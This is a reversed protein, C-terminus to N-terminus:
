ISVVSASAPALRVPEYQEREQPVPCSVGGQHPELVAEADQIEDSETEEEEEEEEEWEEVEEADEDVEDEEEEEEEEEEQSSSETDSEWAYIGVVPPRDDVEGQHPFFPIGAAAWLASTGEEPVDRFDRFWPVEPIPPALMESPVVLDPPPESSSSPAAKPRPQLRYQLRGLGPHRGRPLGARLRPAVEKLTPHLDNGEPDSGFVEELLEGFGSEMCFEECEVYDVSRGHTCQQSWMEWVKDVRSQLDKVKQKELSTVRFSRLIARLVESRSLQGSGSLNWYKFWARREELDPVPGLTMCRQHEQVHRWVWVFLGNTLFDAAHVEQELAEGQAELADSELPLLSSLTRLLMPQALHDENAALFEFCSLPDECLSPVPRMEVAHRRCEPCRLAEGQSSTSSAYGRACTSCLFHLCVATDAVFATPTSRCLPELCIPCEAGGRRNALVCPAALFEKEENSKLFALFSQLMIRYQSRGRQIEHIAYKLAPPNLWYPKQGPKIQEVIREAVRRWTQTGARELAPMLFRKGDIRALVRLALLPLDASFCYELLEEAMKKPIPLGRSLAGAAIDPLDRGEASRAVEAWATEDGRLIRFRLQANLGKLMGCPDERLIAATYPSLGDDSLARPDALLLVWPMIQSMAASVASGPAFAFASRNFPRIAGAEFVQVPTTAFDGGLRSGLGGHADHGVAWLSQDEYLLLSHALGGAMVEVPWPLQTDRGPRSRDFRDGLALQGAGNLGWAYVIGHNRTMIWKTGVGVLGTDPNALRSIETPAARDEVDGLGLQGKDNSGWGFLFGDYVAFSTEDMAAISTVGSALIQVPTHSGHDAQGTGMQGKGNTGWAWLSQDARLALSHLFGAAVAVVGNLDVQAPSSGSGSRGLQGNSNWGWSYLQGHVVALNHRAGSAVQTAGSAFLEHPLALSQVEDGAGLQGNQNSGWTWLRGSEDIAVAHHRGATIATARLNLKSPILRDEEDGLGLKGFENKGWGYLEGDAGIAFSCYAGAAISAQGPQGRAQGRGGDGPGDGLCSRLLWAAISPWLWVAM